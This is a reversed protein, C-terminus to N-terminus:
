HVRAFFNRVADEDGAHPVVSLVVGGQQLEDAYREADDNPIGAGALIGVIGGASVAGMGVLLLALPGAVGLGVPGAVLAIGALGAAVSVGTAAGMMPLAHRLAQEEPVKDKRRQADTHIIVGIEDYAYGRERLWAIVDEAEERTRCLTTVQEM